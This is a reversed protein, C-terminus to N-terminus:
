RMDSQLHSFSVSASDGTKHRWVQQAPDFFITQLLAIILWIRCRPRISRPNPNISFIYQSPCALSEMSSKLSAPCWGITDDHPRRTRVNLPSIYLKISRRRSSSFRPRCKSSPRVCLNQQPQASNPISFATFFHTPM